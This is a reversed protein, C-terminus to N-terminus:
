GIGICQLCVSVAKKLVELQEGRIVGFTISAAALVLLSIRLTWLKKQEMGTIMGKESIRKQGRLLRLLSVNVRKHGKQMM